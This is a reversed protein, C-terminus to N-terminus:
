WPRFAIKSHHQQRLQMFHDSSSVRVSYEQYKESKGNTANLCCVATSAQLDQHNAGAPHVYPAM